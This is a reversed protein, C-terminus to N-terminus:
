RGPRSPRPRRTAPSGASPAMGYTRTFATTFSGVSSMGVACCISAVSRDTNRLM